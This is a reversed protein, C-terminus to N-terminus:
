RIGAECVRLQVEGDRGHNLVKVQLKYVGGDLVDGRISVKTQSKVLAVVEADIQPDGLYQFLSPHTSHQNISIKSYRSYTCLKTM